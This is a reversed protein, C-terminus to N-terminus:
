KIAGWVHNNKLYITQSPVVWGLHQMTSFVTIGSPGSLGLTWSAGIKTNICRIWEVVHKTPKM